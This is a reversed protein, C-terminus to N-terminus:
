SMVPYLSPHLELGVGCLCIYHYINYYSLCMCVFGYGVCCYLGWEMQSTGLYAYKGHNTIKLPLIVTSSDSDNDSMVHIVTPKTNGTTLVSDHSQSINIAQAHRQQLRQMLPMVSMHPLDPLEDDSSEINSAHSPVARCISKAPDTSFKM